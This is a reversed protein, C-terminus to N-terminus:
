CGSVCGWVCVCVCVCACVCLCRKSWSIHIAWGASSFLIPQIHDFNKIVVVIVPMLLCRRQIYSMCYLSAIDPCRSGTAAAAHHSWCCLRLLRGAVSPSQQRCWQHTASTSSQPTVRGRRRGAPQRLKWKAECHILWYLACQVSLIIM